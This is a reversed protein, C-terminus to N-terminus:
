PINVLYFKTEGNGDEWKTQDILNRSVLGNHAQKILFTHKAFFNLNLM